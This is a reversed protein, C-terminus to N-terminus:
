NDVELTGFYDLTSGLSTAGTAHLGHILVLLCNQTGKLCARESGWWSLRGQASDETGEATRSPVSYTSDHCYCNKSHLRMHGDDSGRGCLSVCFDVWHLLYLSRCNRQMMGPHIPRRQIRQPLCQSLHLSGILVLAREVMVSGDDGRGQLGGSQWQCCWLMAVVCIDERKNTEQFLM